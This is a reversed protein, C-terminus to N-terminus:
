LQDAFKIEVATRNVKLSITLLGRLRNTPSSTWADTDILVKPTSIHFQSAVATAIDALKTSLAETRETANVVVAIIENKRVIAAAHRLSPLEMTFVTEVEELGVRTGDAAKIFNKVRDRVKVAAIKGSTEDRKVVCIDGTKFYRVGDITTYSAATSIPNRWYGESTTPTSVFIEGEMASEDELRAKCDAVIALWEGAGACGMAIGGAETCGYSEMLDTQFYKKVFAFCSADTPGGGTAIHQLRGGFIGRATALVEEESYQKLMQSFIFEMGKWIRPTAIFISPRLLSVERLIEGVGNDSGNRQCVGRLLQFRESGVAMEHDEWNSHAYQAFGCRGGNLLTEYIRMRDTSHSLPIYSVTVLPHVNLAHGVDFRFSPENHLTGKPLGASGSTYIISFLNDPVPVETNQARVTGHPDWFKWATCDPRMLSGAEEKFEWTSSNSPISAFVQVYSVLDGQEFKVDDEVSDMCILHRVPSKAGLKIFRKLQVKDCIVLSVGSHNLLEELEDDTFTTHIGISILGSYAAAADAIIYEARNQSTIGVLPVSKEQLIKPKVVRHIYEALQHSKTGLEKYTAWVYTSTEGVTQLHGLAPRVSFERFAGDLIHGIHFTDKFTNVRLSEQDDTEEVDLLEVVKVEAFFQSLKEREEAGCAGWVNSLAKFCSVCAHHGDDLRHIRPTGSGFAGRQIVINCYHCVTNWILNGNADTIVGGEFEVTGQKASSLTEILYAARWSLAPLGNSQHYATLAELAKRFQEVAPDGEDKEPPATMSDDQTKVLARMTDRMSTFDAVVQDVPYSLGNYLEGEILQKLKPTEILVNEKLESQSVLFGRMQGMFGASAKKRFNDVATSAANFLAERLPKREPHQAEMTLVSSHDHESPNEGVPEFCVSCIPM